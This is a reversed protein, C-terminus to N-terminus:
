LRSINWEWIYWVKKTCDTKQFWRKILMAGSTICTTRCCEQSFHPFVSNAVSFGGSSTGVATADKISNLYIFAVDQIARNHARARFDTHYFHSTISMGVMDQLYSDTEQGAQAESNEGSCNFFFFCVQIHFWVRSLTSQRRPLKALDKVVHTHIHFPFRTSFLATPLM